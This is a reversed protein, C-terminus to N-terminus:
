HAGGLPHRRQGVAEGHGVVGRQDDGGGAGGAAGLAHLQAGGRQQGGDAGGRRPDTRPRALRPQAEQGGRGDGAQLDQQAGAQQVCRHQVAGEVRRRDRGGGRVARVHRQDGGLQAAQQVRARVQRREAGHQQAAGGGVGAQQGGGSLGAGADHGGVAHALGAA